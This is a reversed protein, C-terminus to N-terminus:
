GTSLQEDRHIGHYIGHHELAATGYGRIYRKVPQNFEDLELALNGNTFLFTSEKGQVNLGARLGEGDYRNEQIVTEGSLIHTQRNQTDYIYQLNRKPGSEQILNGQSDYSYKWTDNGYIREKLQNKKNYYSEEKRKGQCKELRNGCLDYRYSTEQKGSLESLLRNREDYRYHIDRSQLLYIGWLMRCHWVEWRPQVTGM